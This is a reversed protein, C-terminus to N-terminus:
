TWRAERVSCLGKLYQCKTHPFPLIAHLTWQCKKLATIAPILGPGTEQYVQQICLKRNAKAPLLSSQTCNIIICQVRPVKYLCLCCSFFLPFALPQSDDSKCCWADKNDQWFLSPSFLVNQLLYHASKLLEQNFLVKQENEM